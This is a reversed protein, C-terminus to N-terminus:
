AFNEEIAKIRSEQWDGAEPNAMALLLQELLPFTEPARFEYTGYMAKFLRHIDADIQRLREENNRTSM